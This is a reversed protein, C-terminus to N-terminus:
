NIKPGIVIRTGKRAWRIIQRMFSSPISVCGSTGGPNNICHLFIASGKGSVGEKNYEIFMAYAYSSPSNILVEDPYEPSRGNVKSDCLQNYYPSNSTSCWYMWRTVQTYPQASGPDPQVGFPTSLLFTGTPTRKDGERTKGIGNKGVYGSESRLEVWIGNRKEHTSVTANVGGLYEVLVVQDTLAAAPLSAARSETVLTFSHEKAWRAAYSDSWAYIVASESGTFANDPIVTLSRPLYIERLGCDAFAYDGLSETGQAIILVDPATSRFAADGVTVAPPLDFTGALACASTGWLLAALLACSLLRILGPNQTRNKRATRMM